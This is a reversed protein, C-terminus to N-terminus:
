GGFGNLQGPQAVLLKPPEVQIGHRIECIGVGNAFVAVGNVEPAPLGRLQAQKAEMLCPTCMPIWPQAAPAGAQEVDALAAALQERLSAVERAWEEVTHSAFHERVATEVAANQEALRHLAEPVGGLASITDPALGPQEHTWTCGRISCEFRAAPPGAPQTQEPRITSM